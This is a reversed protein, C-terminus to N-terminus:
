RAVLYAFVSELSEDSPSLEFLTVDHQRALAPLDVAFSGLDGVQVDLYDRRLGVARVSEQAMLVTALRRNDSSQVAYQV